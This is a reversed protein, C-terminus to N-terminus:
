REKSDIMSKAKQLLINKTNDQPNEYVVELLNELIEGIDKGRAGLAAIEKGGLALDKIFLCDDRKKIIEARESMGDVSEGLAEKMKALVGLDDGVAAM